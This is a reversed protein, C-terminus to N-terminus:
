AALLEAQGTKIKAMQDALVWLAKNLKLDQDVGTVGRATVRRGKKYGLYSGGKICHEQVRNFSTWLDNLKDDYRVARNLQSAVLEPNLEELRDGFRLEAAASALGLQENSSLEINKWDSIVSALQKSDEVIRYSGEVINGIIDGRHPVKISATTRGAVMGNSCVLRFVGQSLEFASAGDHSNRLIIEVHEAPRGYKDLGIVADQQRFKLVHTTFDKRDDLRARSQNAEYVEFGNDRMGKVIEYTPVYTYRDSRSEHAEQAFVSPAVARIHDDSLPRNYYDRTRIAM